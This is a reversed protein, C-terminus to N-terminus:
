RVKKYHGSLENLEEPTCGISDLDKGTKFSIDVSDKAITLTYFLAGDGFADFAKQTGSKYKGPEVTTIFCESNNSRFILHPDNSGGIVALVGAHTSHKYEKALKVMEANAVTSFLAALLASYFVKKM